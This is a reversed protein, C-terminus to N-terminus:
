NAKCMGNGSKPICIPSKPAPRKTSRTTFYKPLDDFIHPISGGKLKKVGMQEHIETGNPMLLKAFHTLIEEKDFHKECVKDKVSLTKDARPIAKNWKKVM